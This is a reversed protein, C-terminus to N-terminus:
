AIGNIIKSFGSTALNVKWILRLISHTFSTQLLHIIDRGSMECNLEVDDVILARIAPFFETPELEFTIRQSSVGEPPAIRGPISLTFRSGTKPISTANLAGGHLEALRRAMPLGLGTGPQLTNRQGGKAQEFPKFIREMDEAEVGAGEDWVCMEVREETCIMDLGVQKRSPTFKIANSLLNFLIQKIRLADVEMWIPEDPANLVLRIEKKMALPRLSAIVKQILPALDCPAKILDFKGAEIKALDLIDNVMELLHHGNQHIYGIRELFKGPQRSPEENLLFESFGIIVNLPTRLEHSMSALFDSKARSAAEAMAKAEMLEQEYQKRLSIDEKVALFHTIVGESNRVPSIQASEWYCEGSKKRNYFEGRWEHGSLITNWLARYNQSSEGEPKLIRPNQGLAEAFTYGTVETFRPNVYEIRGQLDTIVVSAPSQEVATSLKRLTEEALKRQTIDVSINLRVLRGDIWKIVSDQSSYWRGNRTNQYEWQKLLGTEAHPELELLRQIPCYECIQDPYKNLLSFCTKGEYAGFLDIGYRNMYLLEYSSMDAVYVVAGISDLIKLFRQNLLLLEDEAKKRESIDRANAVLMRQGNSEFARLKVEVPLHDGSRTQHVTNIVGSGEASSYIAELQLRVEEQSLLPKIDAPGMSLMTHRSYGLQQCATQNVDVFTFRDLDILFLQDSSNDVAMRFQLLTEEIRKRDSIDRSHVVTRVCGTQKDQSVNVVDEIWLYEGDAKRMRYQLKFDPLQEQAAQEVKEAVFFRDNPHILELIDAQHHDIFDEASYGLNVLFRPSIYKLVSNEFLTISDTSNEALLRYREESELLAWEMQKHETIDLTMGSIRIAGEERWTVSGRDYFWLFEGDSKKIRYESEFLESKASLCRELRKEYVSRDETHILELFHSHHTLQDPPYGLMAFRNGNCSLEGSPWELEWWAMNGAQMASELRRDLLAIQERHLTEETIDEVLTRCYQDRFLNSRLRLHHVEGKKNLLSIEVKVERVETKSSFVEQLHKFFRDAHHHKLPILYPLFLHDRAKAAPTALLQEAYRNLELLVGKSDFLLYGVPAYYFLDSFRAKEEELQRQSDRLEENQLELEVQSVALEEILRLVDEKFESAACGEGKERLIAEAKRRLANLQSNQTQSDAEM